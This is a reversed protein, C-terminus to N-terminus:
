FVPDDVGVYCLSAIWPTFAGVRECGIESILSQDGEVRRIPPCQSPVCCHGRIQMGDSTIVNLCVTWVDLRAIAMMQLSRHAASLDKRLLRNPCDRVAPQLHSKLLKGWGVAWSAERTM